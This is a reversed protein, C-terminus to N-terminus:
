VTTLAPSAASLIARKVLNKLLSLKYANGSLPTAGSLAAEAAAAASEENIVVGRLCEQAESARWPVPAVAGLVINASRCHTTDAMELVVAVAALPWDFAAKEGVELYASRLSTAAAPLLVATVIEAAALSNESHMDAQPQRFFDKLALRRRQGERNMIEVEAAYALLPTAPTSAHVIACSHNAFVAHYRNDGDLAFCHAGGKRLCHHASSRLYWCRPRQLLNGGLSARNRIQPSAACAAAESLAPYHQRLEAHGAIQALTTLAGIRVQGDDTQTVGDLEPLRSIDVLRKPQVLGAKMLDLLDVGGAKILVAQQADPHGDLSLMAQATTQSQISLAASLSSAAQWEFDRM